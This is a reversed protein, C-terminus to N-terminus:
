GSEQEAEEITLKFGGIKRVFQLVAARIEDDAVSSRLQFPNQYEPVNGKGV